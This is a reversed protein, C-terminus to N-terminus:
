KNGPIFLHNNIRGTEVLNYVETFGPFGSIHGSLSLQAVSILGVASNLGDAGGYCWVGTSGHGPHPVPTYGPHPVPHTPQLPVIGPVLGPVRWSGYKTM